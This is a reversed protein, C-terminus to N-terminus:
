VYHIELEGFSVSGDLRIVGRVDSDPQGITTIDGFSADNDCDICYCRPVILHMSGFSVSAELECGDAIEGCGTLDLTLEGFSVSAEGEKLRPLTICHTADGFSLEAEFQEDKQTFHGKTKSIDGEKHIRFRGKKPKKLADALLSLGFILILIPFILDRSFHMEVIGLNDVLFYGGLLTCVISTFNFHKVMWYVGGVLLTSPWLISWFGVDWGLYRAAFLLGGVLLVLIAMAIAGGRGGEWNVTIKGKEEEKKETVVEGQFVPERGLLADTSTEFLEALKPLMNIDPCSLDNEWKSVAQATVGLKEALQDQTLGM